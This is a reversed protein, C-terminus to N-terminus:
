GLSKLAEKARKLYTKAECQEFANVAESFSQRAKDERGIRKHLLGLALCSQGLPGKAGIEKAM